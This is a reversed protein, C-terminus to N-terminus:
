AWYVVRGRWRVFLPAALAWVALTFLLVFRWSAAGPAEGLLPARTLELLHYLPNLDVYASRLGAGGALLPDGAASGLVDVHWLIPTVFFALRLVIQVVPRLDPFRACVLGFLVLLGLGALLQLALGPLFLLTNGNVPADFALIFLAVITLKMLFELLETTLAEFFFLSLPLRSQQMMGIAQILANAGGTVFGAVLLWCTWGAALYLMYGELEQNFAKAYLPALMVVLLLLGLPEWLPGIFTRRYPRTVNGTAFLAWARWLSLGERVDAWAARIPSPM